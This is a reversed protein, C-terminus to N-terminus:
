DEEKSTILITEYTPNIWGSTINEQRQIITDGPDQFEKDEMSKPIKYGLLYTYESKEKFGIDKFRIDKLHYRVGERIPSSINDDIELYDGIKRSSISHEERFYFVDGDRGLFQVEEIIPESDYLSINEYSDVLYLQGYHQREFSAPYSNFFMSKKHNRLGYTVHTDYKYIEKYKNYKKFVLFSLSLFIVTAFIFGYKVWKDTKKTLYTLSIIILFLFIGLGILSKFYTSYLFKEAAVWFEFGMLDGGM